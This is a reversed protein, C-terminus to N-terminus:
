GAAREEVLARVGNVCHEPWLRLLLAAEVHDRARQDVVNQLADVSGDKAVTLYSIVLQNVGWVPAPFDNVTKPGAADSANPAGSPSDLPSKSRDTCTNNSALRAASARPAETRM